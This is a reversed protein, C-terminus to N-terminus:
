PALLERLGAELADLDGADNYYHPSVRLLSHAGLRGLAVANEDLEQASTNVGRERLGRVLMTADPGGCDFACIASLTAGHDLSRVGPIATLGRRVEAALAFARQAGRTVGVALAYRAAAAMGLVLAHSQEWEEFRRAGEYPAYKGPSPWNAGRMDVQLPHWGRDLAADSVALFGVGRPGRLWKRATAALFDCRIASLDIEVQGVAQCADV